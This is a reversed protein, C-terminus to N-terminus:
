SWMSSGGIRGTTVRTRIKPRRQGAQRRRTRPTGGSVIGGPEGNPGDIRAIGALSKRWFLREM